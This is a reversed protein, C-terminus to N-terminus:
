WSQKNRKKNKDEKLGQVFLWGLWCYFGLATVITLWEKESGWPRIFFLLLFIVGILSFLWFKM